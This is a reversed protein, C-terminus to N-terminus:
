HWNDLQLQASPSQQLQQLLLQLLQQQQLQPQQLQLQQPRLDSLQLGLPQQQGQLRPEPLQVQLLRLHLQLQM